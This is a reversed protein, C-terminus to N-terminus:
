AVKTVACMKKEGSKYNIKSINKNEKYHVKIYYYNNTFLAFYYYVRLELSKSQSSDIKFYRPIWLTSM